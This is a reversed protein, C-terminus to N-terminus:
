CVAAAGLQRSATRMGRRKCTEVSRGPLQGSSVIYNRARLTSRSEVGSQRPHNDDRRLVAGLGRPMPRPVVTSTKATCGNRGLVLYDYRRNWNDKIDRGDFPSFTQKPDFDSM